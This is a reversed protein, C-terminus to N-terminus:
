QKTPCPAPLFDMQPQVTSAVLVRFSRGPTGPHVSQGVEGMKEKWGGVLDGM